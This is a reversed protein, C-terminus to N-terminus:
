ASVSAPRSASRRQGCRSGSYVANVTAAKLGTLREQGAVSEDESLDFSAQTIAPGIGYDRLSWIALKLDADAVGARALSRGLLELRRLNDGPRLALDRAKVDLRAGTGCPAEDYLNYASTERYKRRCGAAKTRHM